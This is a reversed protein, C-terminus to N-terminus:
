RGWRLQKSGNETIGAKAIRQMFERVHNMVSSAKPDDYPERAHSVHNRYADKFAEFEGLTGRYFELFAAKHPGRHKKLASAEVKDHIARIIDQWEVWELPAKKIRVRRERALARLALEAVRMLQFVAATALGLAYCNGAETIDQKAGPFARTVKSGFLHAQDVYSRRRPDIQIFWEAGLEKQLILDIHDLIVLREVPSPPQKKRVELTHRVLTATNELAHAECKRLVIALIGYFSKKSRRSEPPVRDGLAIELRANHRLGEIAGALAYFIVAHLRLM